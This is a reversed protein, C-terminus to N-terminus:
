PEDRLKERERMKALEVEAALRAEHEAEWREMFDSLQGDVTRQVDATRRTNILAVGLSALATVFIGVLSLVAWM